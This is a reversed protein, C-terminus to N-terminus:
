AQLMLTEEQYVPKESPSPCYVLLYYAACARTSPDCTQGGVRPHVSTGGASQNRMFAASGNASPHDTSTAPRRPCTRTLPDAGRERSPANSHASSLLAGSESLGVICGDPLGSHGPIRLGALYNGLPLRYV